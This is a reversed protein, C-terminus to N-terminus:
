RMEIEFSKDQYHIKSSETTMELQPGELFKPLFQSYKKSNQCFSAFLAIIVDHSIVFYNGSPLKNFFQMLIKSSKEVNAFGPLSKEKELQQLLDHMTMEMFLPLALKMDDIYIGPEGVLELPHLPLTQDSGRIIHKATELCRKIPSSYIATINSNKLSQGLKFARDVGNKSISVLTTDEDPLFNRRESHRIFHITKNLNNQIM